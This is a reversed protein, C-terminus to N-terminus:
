SKRPLSFLAATLSLSFYIRYAFDVFGEACRFPVIEKLDIVNKLFRTARKLPMNRIAGAAERTNKYHVRLNAGRAKVSKAPNEPETAYRTM